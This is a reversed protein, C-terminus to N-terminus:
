ALMETFIESSKMFATSVSPSKSSCKLFSFTSTFLVTLALSTQFDRTLPAQCDASGPTRNQSVIM